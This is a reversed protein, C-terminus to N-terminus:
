YAEEIKEPVLKVKQIMFNVKKNKWGIQILGKEELLKMLIHIKEYETSSEDFYAPISQKTFRFEIPIARKNEGSFLLSNEYTDMLHNLVTRDYQAM